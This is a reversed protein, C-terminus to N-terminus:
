CLFSLSPAVLCLQGTSRQMMKSPFEPLRLLPERSPRRPDVFRGKIVFLTLALLLRTMRRHGAAAGDTSVFTEVPTCM